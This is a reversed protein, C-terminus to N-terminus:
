NSEYMKLKSGNSSTRSGNANAQVIQTARKNVKQMSSSSLLNEKSEEVAMYKDM